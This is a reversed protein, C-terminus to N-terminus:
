KSLRQENVWGSGKFKCLYGPIHVQSNDVGQRQVLHHSGGHLSSAVKLLCLLLFISGKILVPSRFSPIVGAKVGADAVTRPVVVHVTCIVATEIVLEPGVVPLKAVT